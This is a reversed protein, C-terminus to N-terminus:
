RALEQGVAEARSWGFTKEAAQNWEVVLGHANMVIVCDLAADIVATQMAESQALAAESRQWDTIDQVIGTVRTASGSADRTVRADAHILREEGGVRIRCEYSYGSRSEVGERITRRVRPRDAPLVRDLWVDLGPETQPDFGVLHELGESWEVRGTTEDREWTGLRGVDQLHVLAARARQLEARLREEEALPKLM